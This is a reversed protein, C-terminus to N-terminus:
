RLAQILADAIVEPRTFLTEHGGDVEILNFDGLGQAM